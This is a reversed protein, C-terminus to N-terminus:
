HIIIDVLVQSSKVRSLAKAVSVLDVCELPAHPCINTVATNGGDRDGHVERCCMGAVWIMKRWHNRDSARRVVEVITLGLEICDEKANDIMRKKPRGSLRAM